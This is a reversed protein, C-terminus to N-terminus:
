DCWSRYPTHTKEHEDREAKTVKQPAPLGRARRGEEGECNVCKWEEGEQSLAKRDKGEVPTMSSPDEEREEREGEQKREDDKRKQARRAWMEEHGRGTEKMMRRTREASRAAREDTRM